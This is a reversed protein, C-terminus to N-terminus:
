IIKKTKRTLTVWTEKAKKIRKVIFMMMKVNKLRMFTQTSLLLLRTTM